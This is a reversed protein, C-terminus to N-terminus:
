NESINENLKGHVYKAIIMLIVAGVFALVEILIVSKIYGVQSLMAPVDIIAHLLIAFFYLWIKHKAFVSYFVIISLAIHICIAFIREIGSILFYYSPMTAIAAVQTNIQEFNEATAYNGMNVNISFVITGMMALGALLIAEIGGHGVGYALGTGIGNYKLKLIKFSILRGTEEFVGAMLAGYIIFIIPKERLAFKGLVISHVVGELLSAFIFFSAMGVILPIIKAKYKKHFYIFLAIPLGFSVITSIIMCIISFVSIQMDQRWLYEIM